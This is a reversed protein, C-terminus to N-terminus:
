FAGAVSGQLSDKIGTAELAKGALVAGAAGAVVTGIVVPLGGAKFVANLAINAAGGVAVAGLGGVASTLTDGVVNSVATSADTNGMVVQAGNSVASVGAGVLAALGAGKVSTMALSKMGGLVPKFGGQKINKIANFTDKYGTGMQGGLKFAAFGGGAGNALMSSISGFDSGTEPQQGVVPPMGDTNYPNYTNYQTGVTQITM